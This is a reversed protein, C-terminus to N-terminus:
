IKLNDKKHKVIDDFWDQKTVAVLIDKYDKKNKIIGIPDEIAEQEVYPPNGM